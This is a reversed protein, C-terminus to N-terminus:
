KRTIGELVTVDLTLAVRQFSADSAVIDGVYQGPWLDRMAAEPVYVILYGVDPPSGIFLRQDLTSSSAALVIENLEPRRRLTLDFAIGRLDMQELPPGSDSVLVVFTDIWDENNAVEFVVHALPFALVNTPLAV